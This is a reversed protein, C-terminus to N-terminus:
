RQKMEDEIRNLSERIDNMRRLDIWTGRRTEGDRQFETFLELETYVRGKHTRERVEYLLGNTEGRLLTTAEFKM